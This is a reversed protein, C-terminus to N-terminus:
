AFRAVQKVWHLQFKPTFVAKIFAINLLYGTISDHKTIPDRYKLREDYATWDIGQDDFMHVSDEYLLSILREM